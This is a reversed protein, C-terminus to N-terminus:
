AVSRGLFAVGELVLVGYCGAWACAIVAAIACDVVPLRGGRWMRWLAAVFLAPGASLALLMPVPRFNGQWERTTQPWAPGVMLRGADMVLFSVGFGAALILLITEFNVM